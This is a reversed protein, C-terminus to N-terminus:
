VFSLQWSVGYKDGVWGFLKAFPYAGLPMFVQGGESLKHFLTSVEEESTCDVFLSMAATFTFAHKVASDICAYEQGHLSFIAHKVTGQAGPEGAQYRTISKIESNDFLSTYLNMAEEANGDFMLFTKIKQM